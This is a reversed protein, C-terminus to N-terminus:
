GVVEDKAVLKELHTARVSAQGLLVSPLSLVSVETEVVQLGSLLTSFMAFSILASLPASASWFIRTAPIKPQGRLPASPLASKV